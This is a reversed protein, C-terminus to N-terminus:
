IRKGKNEVCPEKKTGNRIDKNLTRDGIIMTDSTSVEPEKIEKETIGIEYAKQKIDEILKKRAWVAFNKIATKDM